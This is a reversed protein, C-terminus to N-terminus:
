CEAARCLFLDTTPESMVLHRIELSMVETTMSELASKLASASEPEPGPLEAMAAERDCAVLYRLVSVM